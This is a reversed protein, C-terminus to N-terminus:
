PLKDIIITAMSAEIMTTCGALQAIEVSSVNAVTTFTPANTLKKATGEIQCEFKGVTCVINKGNLVISIAKTAPNYDATGGLFAIFDIPSMFTTGTVATPLPQPQGNVQATANNQTLVVKIQQVNIVEFDQAITVNGALDTAEVKFINKSPAPALKVNELTWRDHIVVAEGVVAGSGDKVVVKSNADVRGKITIADKNFVKNGDGIPDIMVAPGEKDLVTYVTKSMTNGSGDTAIITIANKGPQLRVMGTFVGDAKTTAPKGNITVTAGSETKGTVTIDDKNTVPAVPDVDLFPAVKDAGVMLRTWTPKYNDASAEIKLYGTSAPSVEIEVEGKNNTTKTQDVGLGSVKVKAGGVVAGAGFEKVVIVLKASAKPALPELSNVEITLGKGVDCMMVKVGYFEPSTMKITYPSKIKGTEFYKNKSLYYVRIVSENIGTPTYHLVTETVKEDEVSKKTRGYITQQHQNGAFMVYGDEHMPLDRIDAPRVEAILHNDYNYILDYQEPNLFDKGIEDRTGTSADLLKISPPAIKAVHDPWADWDLFFTQDNSITYRFRRYTERPDTRFRAPYGVLDAENRNNNYTNSGVLGGVFCADEAFLFFETQANVDLGLADHYDLNGNADIDAFLAGGWYPYNYINGLGWGRALPEAQGSIQFELNPPIRKNIAWGKTTPDRPNVYDVEWENKDRYWYCTTNYEVYGSEVRDRHIQYNIDSNLMFGDLEFFENNLPDIAHVMGNKKESADFDFGVHLNLKSGCPTGECPDFDFDYSAPRTVFPTFRATSKVGGGCVSVGKTVGKVLRGEADMITARIKYVRNDAATMVFDPDGPSNFFTQNEDGANVIEYTVKPSEVPLIVIGRHKRDPTYVYVLIQHDKIWKEQDPDGAEGRWSTVDNATFGRFVYKGSKQQSFDIKIPRFPILIKDDAVNRVSFLQENNERLLDSNHLNTRLFYYQPLSAGRGYYYFDDAYPDKFLFNWIDDEKVKSENSRIDYIGDSLDVPKGEADKVELTLPTDPSILEPTIGATLTKPTAMTVILDDVPEIPIAAQGALYVEHSYRMRNSTPDIFQYTNQLPSPDWFPSFARDNNDDGYKYATIYLPLLENDSIIHDPPDALGEEGGFDLGSTIIQAGNQDSLELIYEGNNRQFTRADIIGAAWTNTAMDYTGCIETEWDKFRVKNDGNTDIDQNDWTRDYQSGSGINTGQYVRTSSPPNTVWGDGAGDNYDQGIRKVGRDQWAYLLADNCENHVQNPEKESLTIALKNDLGLPVHKITDDESIVYNIGLAHVDVGDVPPATCCDQYMKFTGDALTVYILIKGPQWPIIEDIAIVNDTNEVMGPGSVTGWGVSAFNLSKLRDVYLNPNRYQANESPIFGYPNYPEVGAEGNWDQRVFVHEFEKWNTHDIVIKGTWDYQIPVQKMGNYQYDTVVKNKGIDLVKPRAFPGVVEMKLMRRDVDWNPDFSLHRGEGDKVIFYFGYDTLPAFETGLKGFQEEKLNERIKKSWLAPYANWGFPGGNDGWIQGTVRGTHTQGGPYCRFESSVYRLIPDYPAQIQPTPLDLPSLPGTFGGVNAGATYHINSFQLAHDVITFEAFNVYPDPPYVKLDLTGCYDVGPHPNGNVLKDAVFYPAGSTQQPHAITSNYDFIVDTSYIRINLHTSGDTPKVAVLCDGGIDSPTLQGYGMVYTPVGYQYIYGFTGDFIGLRDSQNPFGWQGTVDSLPRLGDITCIDCNNLGQSCDMDDLQVRTDVYVPTKKINTSTPIPWIGGTYEEGLLYDNADLAGLIQPSNQTGTPPEYWYWYYYTGNTNYQIIFKYNQALANDTPRAVALWEVGGGRANYNVVNRNFNQENNDFPISFPIGAPDNIDNPNDADYLKISVNPFKQDLTTICLRNAVLDLKEPAVNYEHIDLCDYANELNYPIPPYPIQGDVYVSHDQKWPVDYGDITFRPQGLFPYSATPEQWFSDYYRGDPPAPVQGGTSRIIYMYLKGDQPFDHRGFSTCTGRYPTFEFKIIPRKSSAEFVINNLNVTETGNGTSRDKTYRGNGQVVLYVVEEPIWTNGDWYGPKPPPDLTITVETTQEVQFPKSLEVKSGADGPIVEMDMFRRDGNGGYTIGQVPFTQAWQDHISCQTGCQYFKGKYNVPTLRTFGESVTGYGNALTSTLPATPSWPITLPSGQTDYRQGADYIFEGRDYKYNQPVFETKEVPNLHKWDLWVPEYRLDWTPVVGAVTAQRFLYAPNTDSNIIQPLMVKDWYKDYFPSLDNGALMGGPANFMDPAGTNAGVTVIDNLNVDSDGNAVTSGAYFNIVTTGGTFQDRRVVQIDNLRIDGQSIEFAGIGGNPQTPLLYDVDRYLPEGCGYLNTRGYGGGGGGLFATNTDFFRVPAGFGPNVPVRNGGVVVFDYQQYFDSMPLVVADTMRTPNTAALAKTNFDAGLGIDTDTESDQAGVFLEGVLGPYYDDFANNIMAPPPPTPLATFGAPRTILQSGLNNNVGNDFWIEVGLYERYELKINQFTTAPVSFATPDPGLVTSKQINQAQMTVEGNPSRIAAYTKSPNMGTWLDTEVSINYLPSACGGKLVESLIIVDGPQVFSTVPQAYEYASSFTTLRRDGALLQTPDSMLKEYIGETYGLSSNPTSNTSYDFLIVGRENQGWPARLHVQEGCSVQNCPGYNGTMGGAGFKDTSLPFRWGAIGVDWDDGSDWAGFPPRDRVVSGAPYRVIRGTNNTTIVPVLRTSGWYHPTRAENPNNYNYGIVNNNGTNAGRRYIWDGFLYQAMFQGPNTARNGTVNNTHWEEGWNWNGDNSIFYQNPPYWVPWNPVDAAPQPPIPGLYGDLFPEFPAGNDWVPQIIPPQNPMYSSNSTHITENFILGPNREVIDGWGIRFVRESKPDMFYVPNVTNETGDPRLWTQAGSVNHRPFPYPGQTNNATTNDFRAMPNRSCDDIDSLPDTGYLPSMPDAFEYYRSNNFYGDPDLWINGDTDIAVFWPNSETSEGAAPVVDLYVKTWALIGAGMGFGPRGWNGAGNYTTEPILSNGVYVQSPGGSMGPADLRKAIFVANQAKSEAAANRANGLVPIVTMLMLTAILISITKKM